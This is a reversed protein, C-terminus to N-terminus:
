AASDGTAKSWKTVTVVTGRGVRSDIEFEDMLRRVGPLGLGLAGSTSFGDTLARDVDAIGPGADEAVIVVGVRGASSVVRLRVEGVAAYQLINRSLESIASTVLAQDVLSFSMLRTIARGRERAMVVDLPSTIAVSSGNAAQWAPEITQTSVVATSRPSDEPTPRILRTTAPTM